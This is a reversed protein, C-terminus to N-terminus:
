QLITYYKEDTQRTNHFEFIYTERVTQKCKSNENNKQNLSDNETWRSEVVVTGKETRKTNENSQRRNSLQCRECDHTVVKLFLQNFARSKLWQPAKPNILIYELKRFRGM